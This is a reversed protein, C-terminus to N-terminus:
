RHQQAHGVPWHQLAFFGKPRELLAPCGHRELQLPEAPGRVGVCGRGSWVRHSKATKEGMLCSALSRIPFFKTSGGRSHRHHASSMFSRIAPFRSLSLHLTLITVA